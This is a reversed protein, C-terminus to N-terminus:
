KRMIFEKIQYIQIVIRFQLIIEMLLMFVMISEKMGKQQIDKVILTVNDSDITIIQDEDCGTLNTDLQHYGPTDIIM